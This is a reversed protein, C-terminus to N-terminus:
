CCDELSLSVVSPLVSCTIHQPVYWDNVLLHVHTLTDGNAQKNDNRRKRRREGSEQVEGKKGEEVYYFRELKVLGKYLRYLHEALLSERVLVAALGGKEAETGAQLARIYKDRLQTM